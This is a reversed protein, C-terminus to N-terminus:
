QRSPDPFIGWGDGKVEIEYQILTVLAKESTGEVTVRVPLQQSTSGVWTGICDAASVTTSGKCSSSVALLAVLVLLKFLTTSRKGIM